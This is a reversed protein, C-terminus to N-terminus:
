PKISRKELRLIRQQVVLAEKSGEPLLKLIEQWYHIAKRYHRSSEADLALFTLADAQKPNKALIQLLIARIEPTFQQNELQWLSEVYHIWTAESAESNADLSLSKKFADKAELWQQQSQYVRGLLYWGKPSNPKQELQAKLKEALQMPSSMKALLAKAKEKKQEEQVYTQM